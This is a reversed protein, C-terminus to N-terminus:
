FHTVLQSIVALGAIKLNMKNYLILPKAQNIKM